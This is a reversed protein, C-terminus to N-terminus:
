EQSYEFIGGSKMTYFGPPIKYRTEEPFASWSTVLPNLSSDLWLRTNVPIFLRIKVSQNRFKQDQILSFSPHLYILSDNQKFEYSINNAHYLANESGSGKSAFEVDMYLSDNPSPIFHLRPKGIALSYRNSSLYTLNPFNLIEPFELGGQKNEYHSKISLPQKVQMPLIYHKTTSASATFQRSLEIGSILVMAFGAVWLLFFAIGLFKLRKELGFILRFGAYILMLLPIGILFCLGILTLLSQSKLPFLIEFFSLVSFSHIGENTIGPLEGGSIISSMLGVFLFVGTVVFFLGLLAAIARGFFKFFNLLFAGINDFLDHAKTKTQFLEKTDQGLHELNTKVQGLEERISKEINSINVKQGKMELKEATTTAKPLVLWLILYILPGSGYAVTLVAFAIRVWLAEINFYAALGSAVGGIIRNDPDRYLRRYTYTDSDSTQQGSKKTPEEEQDAVVEPEGLQAICYEVEALTVVENLDKIRELLIEAIRSEIDSMIEERGSTDAFKSNLAKLYSSLKEFADEDIHFVQKNINATVTKKM